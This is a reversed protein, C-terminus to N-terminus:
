NIITGAVSGEMMVDDTDLDVRIRNASFEDNKKHVTPFGSMDLLKEQRRYIAYQSRCVMDDKFLRVSIQFVAIENQDDYEIFQGRAVIANARDELTSNGELRAVKQIRDYSLKDTIFLINKEEEHGWVNGKCIIFQNNDGHIEIVDARLLLNDSRVEANGILITTERGLARSGSMRDAKFTFIDAAVFSLSLSLLFLHSFLLRKLFNSLLRM